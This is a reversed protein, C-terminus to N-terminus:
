GRKKKYNEKATYMEQKKEWPKIYSERGCDTSVSIGRPSACSALSRAHSNITGLMSNIHLSFFYFKEFERMILVSASPRNYGNILVYDAQWKRRLSQLSPLAPRRGNKETDAMASVISEDPSGFSLLDGLPVHCLATWSRGIGELVSPAMEQDRQTDHIGDVDRTPSRSAPRQKSLRARRHHM